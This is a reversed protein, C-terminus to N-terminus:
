KALSDILQQIRQVRALATQHRISHFETIFANFAAIFGAAALPFAIWPNLGYGITLWDIGLGILMGSAMSMVSAFALWHVNSFTIVM